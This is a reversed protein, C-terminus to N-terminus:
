WMFAYVKKKYVKYALYICFLFLVLVFFNVYVNNKLMLFFAGLICIWINLIWPRAMIFFNLNKEYLDGVPKLFNNFIILSDHITNIELFEIFELLKNIVFKKNSLKKNNIHYIFNDISRFHYYKKKEKPIKFKLNEIKYKISLIENYM